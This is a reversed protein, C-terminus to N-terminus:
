PAPSGPNSAEVPASSAAPTLVRSFLHTGAEPVPDHGGRCGPHCRLIRRSALYTGVAAGHTQLAELAYASCTPTYRCNSGLWPSLLIRYGQVLTSLTCTPARKLVRLVAHGNM